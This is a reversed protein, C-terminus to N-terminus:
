GRERPLQDWVADANGSDPAGIPWGPCSLEALALQTAIRRQDDPSSSLEDTIRAIMQSLGPDKEALRKAESGIGTM